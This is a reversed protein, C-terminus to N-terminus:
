SLPIQIFISTGKGPGSKTDMTGKLFDVRSKINRYGMGEAFSLANTDFGKGDDEVTIGLIREKLNVQVIASKAAAHKLANNILEQVIRYVSIKVSDDMELDDIGFSQYTVPLAGSATVQQCYDALADDLSLKLLSEPMMNHAVRRLETISLDLLTMTKEFARANEESIIMNQKMGSLSYKTGTLIGGLGDHLDKALRSREAEQGQMLAQTSLLQKETELTQIRQETLDKETKLLKHKRLSDRRLLMFVVLMVVIVGFLISIYITHRQLMLQEIEQEKHLNEIQAEKKSLNYKAELEQRNLILQDTHLKDQISDTLRQYTYYAPMNGNVLAINSLMSAVAAEQEFQKGEKALGFAKTFYLGANKYDKQDFYCLGTYYASKILGQKNNLATSLRNVEGINKRLSAYDGRQIYIESLDTLAVIIYNQDNIKRSIALSEHLFKVAEDTRKLKTLVFSVNCLAEELYYYSKEARCVEIAKLGYKLAQEPSHGISSYIGMINAYVAALHKKDDISEYVSLAKLYYELAKDVNSLDTYSGAINNYAAGMYKKNGSHEALAVAKLAMAISEDTKGRESLLESYMAYYKLICGTCHIRQALDFGKKYYYLASDVKNGAYGFGINLLMSSRTSDDEAEHLQRFMDARENKQCRGALPLLLIGIFALLTARM